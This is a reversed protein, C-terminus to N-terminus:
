VIVQSIEMQQDFLLYGAFVPLDERRVTGSSSGCGM